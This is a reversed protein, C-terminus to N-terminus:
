LNISLGSNISPLGLFTEFGINTRLDNLLDNANIKTGIKAESESRCISSAKARYIMVDRIGNNIAFCCIARIYFRNFENESLIKNANIPVKVSTTTGKQKNTRLETVNFLGTLSNTLSEETGTQIAKLLLAPYKEKGEDTLRNSLYLCGSELDSQFEKEMLARIDNNLKLFSYSM